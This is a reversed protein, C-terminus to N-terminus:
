RGEYRLSSNRVVSCQKNITFFPYPNAVPVFGCARCLAMSGANNSFCDWLPRRGGALCQRIFELVAFRGVGMRRFEPRTLVDIEACNDAVAAAYCIAAPEDQVRALVAGAKKIFDEPSPWFRTIVGFLRDVDDVNRWDVEEAKVISDVGTTSEIAVGAGTEALRFRQRYSRLSV